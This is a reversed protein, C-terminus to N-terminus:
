ASLRTHRCLRRWLHECEQQLHPVIIPAPDRHVSSDFIGGTMKSEFRIGLFQCLSAFEEVPNSVAAEYSVLRASASDALGLDFFLRNQFLWYLAAGSEPTLDPRWCARIYEQTELPPRCDTFESFDDNIWGNVHNLRNAAGFKKLSSNIVDYYHRFAFIIKAEPFHELLLCARYTELIPKFLVIPAHSGAVLQEIVPFERLFWNDFAASNNENYIELQWSRGLQTVLMSTGSRGCGILFAPRSRGGPNSLRQQIHRWGSSKMQNTQRWLQQLGTQIDRAM